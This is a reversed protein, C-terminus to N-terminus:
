ASATAVCALLSSAVLKMRCIRLGGSTQVLKFGAALVLRWLRGPYRDRRAGRNTQTACSCFKFCPLHPIGDVVWRCPAISLDVSPDLASAYDGCAAETSSKCDWDRLPCAPSCPVNFCPASAPSRQEYVITADASAFIVFISVLLPQHAAPL